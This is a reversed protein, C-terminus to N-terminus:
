RVSLRETEYVLLDFFVRITGVSKNRNDTLQSHHTNVYM